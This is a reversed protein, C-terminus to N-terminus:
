RRLGDLDAWRGIVGWGGFSETVVLRLENAGQDLPLYLRSQHLGMVGQVRPRDFRYSQDLAVIPRGNLFVSVADSFGLDLTKTLEREAEIRLRLVRGYARAQDPRGLRHLLVSGDPETPVSTWASEDVAPLQEYLKDEIAFAPSAQWQRVLLPDQEASPEVRGFDFTTRDPTVKLNRFRAGFPAESGRPIFSRLSLTGAGPEHTLRAIVLRPEDENGVFVALRRGSIELRLDIWQEAPLPVGATGTEGHFLQWQSAGAIAPTYQLADPLNSKHPRLYIEEWNGDGHDRFRVYVFSRHSSVQVEVEITGNEFLVDPLLAIGTGIELIQAFGAAAIRADGQLQWREGLPIRPDGASPDVQAVASAAILFIAVSVLFCPCRSSTEFRASASAM